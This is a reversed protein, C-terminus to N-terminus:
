EMLNSFLSSILLNMNLNKQLAFLTYDIIQLYDVSKRWSIFDKLKIMKQGYDPNMLLRPNSGQQILVLDRCFSSLIELNQELEDKTLGQRPSYQNLYNAINEKKVFSVLFQWIEERRSQIEEWDLQLAKKLNGKVLLSIVKAKKASFGKKLLIKEIEEKLIPQFNLIQCRSKITPRIAEPNTTILIIHSFLPPEELIKLLSNSAEENMKEAETLIFVRKKGVMPKLYATQKLVRMQSIKIVNREPFIVMVDPFNNKNIARCAPCTECADDKKNICNLSKALVLALSRKGVGEQGCFLMSNPLREKQLARRLIKKQRENGLIDKFAM